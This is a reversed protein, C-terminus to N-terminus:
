SGKGFRFEVKETQGAKIEISVSESILSGLIGRVKYKGPKLPIIKEDEAQVPTSTLFSGDESSINLATRVFALAEATYRDITIKASLFGTPTVVSTDPM